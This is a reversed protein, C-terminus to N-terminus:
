RLPANLRQQLTQFVCDDRLEPNGSAVFHKLQQLALMSDPLGRLKNDSVDLYELHRLGHIAEPLTILANQRVDLHQLSPLSCVSDPLCQLNNAALSLWQLAPLRDLVRSLRCICAEGVKECMLNSCVLDM